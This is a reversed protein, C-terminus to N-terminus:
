LKGGGEGSASHLDFNGGGFEAVHAQSTKAQGDGIDLLGIGGGDENEVEEHPDDIFSSSVEEIMGGGDEMNEDDLHDEAGFTEGGQEDSISTNEHTASSIKQIAQNALNQMLHDEEGSARDALRSQLHTNADSPVSKFAAKRVGQDKDDVLDTLVDSSMSGPFNGLASAAAIRITPDAKEAATRIITMARDGRILGALYTAKCALMVDDGKVLKELHPLAGAGLGTAETYNPEEPDLYERVQKMNVTM